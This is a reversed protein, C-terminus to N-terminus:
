SPSMTGKNINITTQPRKWIVHSNDPVDNNNSFTSTVPARINGAYLLEVMLGDFQKTLKRLRAKGIPAIEFFVKNAVLLFAYELATDRAARENPGLFKQRKTAYQLTNYDTLWNKTTMDAATKFGVVIDSAETANRVQRAEQLCESLPKGDQLCENLSKGDQFCQSLSKGNQSPPQNQPIKKKEAMYQILSYFDQRYSQRVDRDVPLTKVIQEDSLKKFLWELFDQRNSFTLKDSKIDAIDAKLNDYKDAATTIAYAVYAPYQLENKTNSAALARLHQHARRADLELDPRDTKMHLATAIWKRERDIRQKNYVSLTEYQEKCWLQSLSTPTTTCDKQGSKDEPIDHCIAVFTNLLIQRQPEIHESTRKDNQSIRKDKQSLDFVTEAVRYNHWFVSEEPRMKRHDPGFLECALGVAKVVSELADRNQESVDHGFATRALDEAGQPSPAEGGIRITQEQM